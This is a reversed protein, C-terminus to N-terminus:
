NKKKFFIKEDVVLLNEIVPLYGTQLEVVEWKSASNIRGAM